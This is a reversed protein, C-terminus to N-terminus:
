TLMRFTKKKANKVEKIKPEDNKPKQPTAESRIKALINKWVQDFQDERSLDLKNLDALAEDASKSGTRYANFVEWIDSCNKSDFLFLWPGDVKHDCNPCYSYSNGCITCKKKTRM